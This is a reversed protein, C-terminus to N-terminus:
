RRVLAPRIGFTGSIARQTASGNQTVQGATMDGLTIEIRRNGRSDTTEKSEANADTYNNIVVQTTNGSGDVRVGLNGRSDRKLPMIAEPGAEGMMGTGKAFKFVTPKDVVSNTFAGGMAFKEIGGDFAGGKAYNGGFLSGYNTGASGGQTAFTSGGGSGFLSLIGPRFAAYMQMMQMRLEFRLLDSLMDNILSKFNLKGTKAFEVIADAMGEFTKEFVKGYEVQRVTYSAELEAAQKRKEAVSDIGKREIDYKARLAEGELYADLRAQEGGPGEAADRIRKRLRESDLQYNIDLAALKQVRDTEVELLRIRDQKEKVQQQTLQYNNIGYELELKLLELITNQEINATEQKIKKLNIEKQEQESLLKNIQLKTKVENETKKQADQATILNGKELILSSAATTYRDYESQSMSKKLTDLRIQIDLEEQNLQARAIATDRDVLNDSLTKSQLIQEKTLFGNQQELLNVSSQQLAIRSKIYENSKIQYGTTEANIKLATQLNVINEQTGLDARQKQVGAQARAFAMMQPIAGAQEPTLTQQFSKTFKELNAIFGTLTGKGTGTAIDAFQKTLQVFSGEQGSLGEGPGAQEKAKETASRLLTAALIAQEIRAINELQTLQARQINIADIALKGELQAAGPVQLGSAAAKALENAGKAFALDLEKTVARMGKVVSEGIAEGIVPDKLIKIIKQRNDEASKLLQQLNQKAQELARQTDEAQAQRAVAQGGGAIDLANGIDPALAVLRKYEEELAIVSREQEKIQQTYVGNVTNLTSIEGGITRLRDATNPNFLGLNSQDKLLDNFAGLAQKIDGSMMKSLDTGFKIFEDALQSFVSQDKLSNILEKQKDKVAKLSETFARAAQGANGAATKVADLTPQLQKVSDVAEKGGKALKELWQTRDETGLKQSIDAILQQRSYYDDVSNVVANLSDVTTKAWKSQIDRNFLKAFNNTMSDWWSASTAEQIDSFKTTLDKMADVANVVATGWATINKPSFREDPRTTDLFKLTANLTTTVENSIDVAKNFEALSKTTKSMIADLAEFGAVFIGLVMGIQGLSSALRVIGSTLVSATGSVMTFSKGMLGMEKSAKTDKWLNALSPVIGAVSASQVAESVIRTRAATSAAQKAIRENIGATSWWPAKGKARAVDEEAKQLDKAAQQAARIDNALNGYTKALAKNKAILADLDKLQQENYAHLNPDKIIDQIGKSVRDRGRLKELKTLATAATEEKAQTALEAATAKEQYRAVFAAKSETAKKEAFSAAFDATKKLEERYQTLAPLGQKILSLGIGGLVTGLALPSQALLSILPTLVKNVLELGSQILNKFSAELKTYPNQQIDIANFKDSGEKLVAIAFAQRKEFDTLASSAKGISRAYDETAPGIKTFIGLEDLLEPELKTIGRSLRSVADTLSIGLAQSAKKAVDGIQLIQQRSLGSTVGKVTAEMADRMSLAGDTVEVFQKALSGMAVGSRAGLQDMAQIMTTTNMADSLSRFAAGAAYINAAYIAYLKVLGSLGESQKAFDRGAAGTGVTARVVGYQAIAGGPTSAETIAASTRSGAPASASAVAKGARTAAAVTQDLVDKLNQVNKQAKGATGNDSVDIGIKINEAM